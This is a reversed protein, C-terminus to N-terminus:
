RCDLGDFGVHHEHSFPIPQTHVLNQGTVFPSRTIAYGAGILIAPSAALAFLVVRVVTDAYPRFIQALGSARV